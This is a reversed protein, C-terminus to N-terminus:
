ICLNMQCGSSRPTGLTNIRVVDDFKEPSLNFFGRLDAPRDAALEAPSFETTTTVAEAQNGGAGNLLFWPAGFAQMVKDRAHAVAEPKTVDCALCLAEGGAARIDAAVAELTEVTRGLLAVRAGERALRRAIASCLTGGAGTIVATKGHFFSANM